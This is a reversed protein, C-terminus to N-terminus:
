GYLLQMFGFFIFGLLIAELILLSILILSIIKNYPYLIKFILMFFTFLIFYLILKLSVPLISTFFPLSEPPFYKNELFVYISNEIKSDLETIKLLLNNM